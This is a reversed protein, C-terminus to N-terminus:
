RASPKAGSHVALNGDGDAWLADFEAYGAPKVGKRKLAALLSALVRNSEDSDDGGFVYVKDRPGIAVADLTEGPDETAAYHGVTVAAAARWVILGICPGAGMSGVQFGMPPPGFDVTKGADVGRWRGRALVIVAPELRPLGKFLDAKRPPRSVVAAADDLLGRKANDREHLVSPGAGEQARGELVLFLACAAVAWARLSM